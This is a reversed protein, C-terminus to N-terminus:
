AEPPLLVVDSQWGCGPRPFRPNTKSGTRCPRRNKGSSLQHQQPLIREACLIPARRSRLPYRGVHPVVARPSRIPTPYLHAWLLPELVWCHPVRGDPGPGTAPAPDPVALPIRYRLYKPLLRTSLLARGPSAREPHGQRRRTRPRPIKRANAAMRLWRAPPRRRSRVAHLLCTTVTYRLSLAQPFRLLCRSRFQRVRTSAGRKLRGDRQHRLSSTHNPKSLLSTIEIRKIWAASM